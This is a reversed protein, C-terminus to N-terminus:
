IDATSRNRNEYESAKFIAGRWAARFLDWRKQLIFQLLQKPLAAGYLFLLTIWRKYIPVNRLAFWIRNRTMYFIKLPSSKGVSMSEKHYVLSEGCYRIEFGKAKIRACWDYEEYYLFFRAEMLGVEQLISKPVLMAAGHIFATPYSKTYQGKDVEGYGLSRNRLTFTNLDTSGAYQVIGKPDYYQLRPSAMGLNPVAKGLHVLHGLFDPEVETDNNIFLIFEGSCYPLGLNNGGAFGLNSESCIVQVIPFKEHIAKEADFGSGNDVVIVEYNDYEIQSISELFQLTMELQKYQVTLISVLPNVM